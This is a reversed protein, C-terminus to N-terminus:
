KAQLKIKNYEIKIWALPKGAFLSLSVFFFIVWVMNRIADEESKYDADLSFLSIWSQLLSVLLPLLLCALPPMYLGISIYRNTNPLLYM